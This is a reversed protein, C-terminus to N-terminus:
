QLARPLPFIVEERQGKGEEVLEVGWEQLREIVRVGFGEDSFLICGIGLIM